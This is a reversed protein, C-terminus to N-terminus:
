FADVTYLGGITPNHRQRRYQSVFTNRMIRFLWAKVNTGSEFQEQGKLARAYTEQVLDEADARNGTLHRAFNRLADVYALAETAVAGPPRGSARIVPRLTARR